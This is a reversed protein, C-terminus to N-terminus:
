DATAAPTPQMSKNASILIAYELKASQEVMQKRGKELEKRIAIILADNSQATSIEMQSLAMLQEERWQNSSRSSVLSVYLALSAILLSLVSIGISLMTIRKSQRSQLENTGLQILPSFQLVANTSAGKEFIEAAYQNVLFEIERDKLGHPYNAKLEAM